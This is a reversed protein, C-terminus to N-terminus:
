ALAATVEAMLADGRGTDVVPEELMRELYAELGLAAGALAGLAFTGATGALRHAEGALAQIEARAREPAQALEAKLAAWRGALGTAQERADQRFSDRLAELEALIEAPITM